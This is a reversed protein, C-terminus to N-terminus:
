IRMKNLDVVAVGKQTVVWASCKNAFKIAEEISRNELYKVALAALFTDGAGTLDRVPHEIEIPYKNMWHMAGEKGLTVVLDGNYEKLLYDVNEDFEKKNIKMVKIDKTWSGIKKKTDLFTLSHRNAIYEILTDTLFGKNYDSIVVADYDDFKIKRLGCLTMPQVEDNEDVRLLM